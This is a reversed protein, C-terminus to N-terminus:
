GDGRFRGRGHPVTLAVRDEFPLAVAEGVLQEQEHRGVVRDLQDAQAEINNGGVLNGERDLATQGAIFVLRSGSVEVVNSYGPPPALEPPNIYRITGPPTM